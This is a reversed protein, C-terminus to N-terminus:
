GRPTRIRMVSSSVQKHDFSRYRSGGLSRRCWKATAHFTSHGPFRQWESCERTFQWWLQDPYWQGALRRRLFAFYYYYVSIMGYQTAIHSMSLLPLEGACFSNTLLKLARVEHSHTDLLASWANNGDTTHLPNHEAKDFLIVYRDDIVSLQMAAVGSTGIQNYVSTGNWASASTSTVSARKHIVRRGPSHAHVLTLIGLLLISLCRLAIFSRACAM